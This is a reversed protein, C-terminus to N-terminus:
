VFFFPTLSFLGFLFLKSGIVAVTNGARASPSEGETYMKSWQMKDMSLVYLESLMRRGNWGGWLYLRNKYFFSSHSCRPSPSKGTTLPRHWFPLLRVADGSEASAVTVNDELFHRSSM